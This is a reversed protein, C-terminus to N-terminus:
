IYLIGIPEGCVEREEMSTLKQPRNYLNIGTLGSAKVNFMRM